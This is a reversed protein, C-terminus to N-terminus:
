VGHSCTQFSSTKWARSHKNLEKGIHSNISSNQAYSRVLKMEVAPQVCLNRGSCLCPILIFLCDVTFYPWKKANRFRIGALRLGKKIWLVAKTHLACARTTYSTEAERRRGDRVSFDSIFKQQAKTETVDWLSSYCLLLLLLLLLLLPLM